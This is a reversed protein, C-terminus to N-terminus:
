QLNDDTIDVLPKIKRMFTIAFQDQAHAGRKRMKLALRVQGLGNNAIMRAEGITNAYNLKTNGLALLDLTDDKEKGIRSLPVNVGTGAEPALLPGAFALLEKNGGTMAVTYGSRGNVVEWSNMRVTKIRDETNHGQITSRFYDRLELYEPNDSYEGPLHFYLDASSQRFVVNLISSSGSAGLKLRVFTTECGGDLDLCKVTGELPRTGTTKEGNGARISRVPMARGDGISGAVNYVKTESGEKIKLTIIADSTLRDITLKASMVSAAAQLNAQQTAYSVRENRARLFDLLSDTSSSTYVLGDNTMAGTLRKGFSGSTVNAADGSRYDSPIHNMGTPAPLTKGVSPPTAPKITEAPIGPGGHSPAAPTTPKPAPAVPAPKPAPKPAPAPNGKAPGPAPPPPPAPNKSGSPPPTTPIPEPLPPNYDEEGSINPDPLGGGISGNTDEAHSDKGTDTTQQPLTNPDAFVDKKKGCATLSLSATLAAIILSHKHLVPLM